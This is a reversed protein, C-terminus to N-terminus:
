PLNWHLFIAYFSQPWHQAKSLCSSHKFKRVVVVVLQENFITFCGVASAAVPLNGLDLTNLCNMCSLVDLLCGTQAFILQIKYHNLKITEGSWELWLKVM